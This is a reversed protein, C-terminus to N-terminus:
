ISVYYLSQFHHCCGTNSDTNRKEGCKNNKFDCLNKGYFYSDLYDCVNDYIYNYREYRNPYFIANIASIFDKHDKNQENYDKLTNNILEGVKMQQYPYEEKLKKYLKSVAEKQSIANKMAM